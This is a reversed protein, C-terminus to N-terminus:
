VEYSIFLLLMGGMSIYDVHYATQKNALRTLECELQAEVRNGFDKPDPKDYTSFALVEYRLEKERQSIGKGTRASLEEPVANKKLFPLAKKRILIVFFVIVAILYVLVKLNGM